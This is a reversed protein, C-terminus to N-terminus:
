SPPRRLRRLNPPAPHIAGAPLSHPESDPPESDSLTFPEVVLPESEPGHQLWRKIWKKFRKLADGLLALFSRVPKKKPPRGM